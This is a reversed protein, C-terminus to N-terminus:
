TLSELQMDHCISILEKNESIVDPFQVCVTLGYFGDVFKYIESITM